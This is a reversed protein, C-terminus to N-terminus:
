LAVGTLQLVHDMNRNSNGPIDGDFYNEEMNARLSYTSGFLHMTLKKFSVKYSVSRAWCKRANRVNPEGLRSQSFGEQGEAGVWRHESLENFRLECGADKQFGEAAGGYGM